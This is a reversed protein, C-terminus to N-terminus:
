KSPDNCKRNTYHIKRIFALVVSANKKRFVYIGGTIGRNDVVQIGAVRNDALKGHM